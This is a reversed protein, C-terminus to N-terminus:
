DPAAAPAGWEGSGARVAEEAEHVAGARAFNKYIQNDLDERDTVVVFSWNGPVKRLVKQSFFVMSYSKGSGQTHWFVGLKGANQKSYELARIANNVGLYQHNMAIIKALGSETESFLTFNEVIDLLREREMVGRLLTELAPRRPEDEREVKQWQSFHEWGATISGLRAETGNSAVLLANYEFLGPLTNRYDRLNDDLAKRVPFHVAKLEILVLPLGNVFGIIDPRRLHLGDPSMMWLQSVVLFRNNGPTEWDIVRVRETRQEGEADNFTVPVGEKLLGYIERNAAARQMGLHPLTLQAAADRLAAEPLEPNLAQLAGLLETSLVVDSFQERGYPSGAGPRHHVANVTQWGLERLLELAPQEVLRDEGYDLLAQTM